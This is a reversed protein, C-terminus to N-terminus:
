RVEYRVNEWDGEEVYYVRVEGSALHEARQAVYEVGEWQAEYEGSNPVFGDAFIEKQLAAGPNFQIVQNQEGRYLLLDRLSAHSPEVDQLQWVGHLPGFHNTGGKMGAKTMCDSPASSLVWAHYLPGYSPGLGAGYFGDSNTRGVAARDSWRNEHPIQQLEPNPQNLEPYTLAVPQGIAARGDKGRTEIKFLAPAKLDGQVFIAVLRWVQTDGEQLRAPLVTCGDYAQALWDLNKESGDYDFVRTTM